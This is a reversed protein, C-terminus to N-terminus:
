SRKPKPWSLKRRRSANTAPKKTFNEKAAASAGCLGDAQRLARARAVSEDVFANALEIFRQHNALDEQLTPVEAAPVRRSVNGGNEWVQLKYYPGLRVTGEGDPAPRTRYEESLTGREMTTLRAMETLIAEIAPITTKNMDSFTQAVLCQGSWIFLVEAKSRLKKTGCGSRIKCFFHLRRDCVNECRPKSLLAKVVVPGILGFGVLVMFFINVVSHRADKVRTEAMAPSILPVTRLPFLKWITEPADTSATSAVLTTARVKM